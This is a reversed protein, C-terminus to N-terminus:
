VQWVFELATDWILIYFSVEVDKWIWEGIMRGNLVICDSSIVDDNFLYISISIYCKDPLLSVDFKVRWSRGCELPTTTTDLDQGWFAFFREVRLARMAYYGAHRIGYKQGAEILQTYVHLAFQFCVSSVASDDVEECLLLPCKVRVRVGRGTHM